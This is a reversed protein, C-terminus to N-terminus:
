RHVSKELILKQSCKRTSTKRREFRLAGILIRITSHLTESTELTQTRKILHEDLSNLVCNCFRVKNASRSLIHFFNDCGVRSLMLTCVQCTQFVICFSFLSDQIRSMVSINLRVIQVIDVRSYSFMRHRLLLHSSERAAELLRM